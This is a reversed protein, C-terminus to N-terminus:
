ANYPWRRAGFIDPPVNFGDRRLAALEDGSCKTLDLVYIPKM